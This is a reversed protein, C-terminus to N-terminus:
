PELHMGTMAWERAAGSSRTRCTNVVACALRRLEEYVLPLLDEAVRDGSQLPRHLHFSVDNGM